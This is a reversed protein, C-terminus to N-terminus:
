ATEAALSPHVLYTPSPRRGPGTRPEEPLPRIYGHQELLDLAPDLDGVKRFRSRSLATFAGRRTFTAPRAKCLWDLVARADDLAPDLGMWDFVPLASPPASWSPLGTRWTASTATKVSGPSSTPRSTWCCSRRM